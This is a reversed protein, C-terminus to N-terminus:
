DKTLRPGMVASVTMPSSSPHRRRAEAELAERSLGIWWSDAPRKPGAKPQTSPYNRMWAAGGTGRKRTQWQRGPHKTRCAQCRRNGSNRDHASLAEPCTACIAVAAKREGGGSM